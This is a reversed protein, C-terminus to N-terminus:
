EEEDSSSSESEGDSDSGDDAQQLWECFPKAKARLKARADATVAGRAAGALGAGADDAAATYWALVVDEELVDLDYLAKLALPCAALMAPDRVALSEEVCALLARQRAADDGVLAKLVAGHAPYATQPKVHKMGTGTLVGFVFIPVCDAPKFGSNVQLAKVKYLLEEASRDGEAAFDRMRDVATEVAAADDVTLNALTAVTSGDPMEEPAAEAAAKAAAIRAAETAHGDDDSDSSDSDSGEAEAEAAAAAAAKKAKKAAKKAKKAAKKEKKAAKKAKKAEKWQKKEQKDLKEGKEKKKKLKRYVKAMDKNAKNRQKKATTDGMAQKKADAIIFTCLKHKADAEGVHGCAQCTHMVKFGSKKNGVVSLDTEPLGCEPCLVFRPIYEKQLCDQLMGTEFAGNVIAKADVDKKPAIFKTQAGLHAGFFKCVQEPPRRLAKSIAVCNVIVTKIGNGRGEIKAMLRPMKYRYAPDDTEGINIMAM